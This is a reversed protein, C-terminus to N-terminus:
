PASNLDFIFMNGLSPFAAALQFHDRFFAEDVALDDITRLTDDIILYDLQEAQILDRVAALDGNIGSLLQRLLTLRQGTDHGASWAYYSHGFWIARGSL